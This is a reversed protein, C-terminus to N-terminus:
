FVNKENSSRPFMTKFINSSLFGTGVVAGVLMYTVLKKFKTKIKNNMYVGGVM